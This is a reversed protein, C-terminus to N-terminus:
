ILLRILYSTWYPFIYYLLWVIRYLRVFELALRFQIILLNAFQGVSATAHFDNELQSMALEEM